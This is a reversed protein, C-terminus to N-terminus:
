SAVQAQNVPDCNQTMLTQTVLIVVAAVGIVIVAVADRISPRWDADTTQGGAGQAHENVTTEEREVSRERSVM